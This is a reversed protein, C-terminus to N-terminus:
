VTHVNGNDPLEVEDSGNDQGEFGTDGFYKPGKRGNVGKGMKGLEPGDEGMVATKTGIKRDSEAKPRFEAGNRGMVVVMEDDEPDVARFDTGPKPKPAECQPQTTQNNQPNGKGAKKVPQKSTRKSTVESTTPSAPAPNSPQKVEESLSEVKIVGGRELEALDEDGVVVSDRIVVANGKIILKLSNIVIPGSKLNTIKVRSM